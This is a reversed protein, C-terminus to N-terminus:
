RGRPLPDCLEHVLLEARNDRSRDCPEWHLWLVTLPLLALIAAAAGRLVPRTRFRQLLDAYEAAMLLAGALFTVLYYAEKDENIEYALAYFVNFGVLLLLTTLLRRSRRGLCAMGWLAALFAAPTGQFVLHRVIRLLEAWVM